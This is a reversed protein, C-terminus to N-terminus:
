ASKRLAQYILLIGALLLAGIWVLRLLETMQTGVLLSVILLIASPIYAWSQKGLVAVILFTLGIGLFFIGSTDAMGHQAVLSSFALTLLVGAPILAWWRERGSFYVAWFGLSIGGLFITGDWREPLFASASIGALVFGPIAAWWHHPHFFFIYLFVLAGIGFIVGWFLDSVNRLIGQLELFGLISAFILVLGLPIRIDIKKNM